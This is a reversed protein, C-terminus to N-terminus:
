TVNTLFGCPTYIFSELLTGAVNSLNKKLPKRSIVPQTKISLYFKLLAKLNTIKSGIHEVKEEGNTRILSTVISFHQWPAEFPGRPSVWLGAATLINASDDCKGPKTHKM